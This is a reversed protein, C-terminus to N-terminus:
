AAKGRGNSNLCPSTNIVPADGLAIESPCPCFCLVESCADKAERGLIEATGWTKLRRKGSRDYDSRWVALIEKGVCFHSVKQPEFPRNLNM